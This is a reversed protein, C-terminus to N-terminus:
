PVTVGIQASVTTKVNDGDAVTLRVTVPHTGAVRVTVKAAEAHPAPAAYEDEVEWAYLLPQRNNADDVDDRSATGDLTVDTRYDDGLPIYAPAVTIRAIPPHGQSPAACGMFATLLVAFIRTM